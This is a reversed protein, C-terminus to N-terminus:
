RKWKKDDVQNIVPMLTDVLQFKFSVQLRQRFFFSSLLVSVQTDQVRIPDVLIGGHLVIFNNQYIRGVGLNAIVRSDVPDDVGRVLVALHAAEGGGAALSAAQALAAVAGVVDLATGVAGGPETAVRHAELTITLASSSSSNPLLLVKNSVKEERTHLLLYFKATTTTRLFKPSMLSGNPSRVIFTRKANFLTSKTWM